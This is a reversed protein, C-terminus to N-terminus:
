PLFETIRDALALEARAASCQAAAAACLGARGGGHQRPRRYPEAGAGPRCARDQRTHQRVCGAHFRHRADSFQPSPFAHHNDKTELNRALLTRPWNEPMKLSREWESPERKSSWPKSRATRLQISFPSPIARVAM